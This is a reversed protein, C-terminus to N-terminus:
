KLSVKEGKSLLEDPSSIPNRELLSALKIGENQSIQRLTTPSNVTFVVDTKSKNKKPQLYIIDGEVLVDKKDGFDNYRYLQWMAIDFEQAIQYFTDGKKAVIYSIKNKHILVTHKGNTSKLSTQSLTLKISKNNKKTKANKTKASKKEKPAKVEEKKILVDMPKATKGAQDFEHLKLREILDVLLQPYKPNTAYGADKLGQAWNKYDTVQYSFLGAYRSRSTLFLSHDKYSESANDYSRFCENAKDDDLYITAGKWDHCKIGFHNNAKQALVSNGYGSELIGQALTISAPIKYDAMQQIAIDKWMSVYEEQTYKKNNEFSFSQFGISLVASVVLWNRM